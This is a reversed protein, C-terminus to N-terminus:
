KKAKKKPRKGATADAAGAGQSAEFDFLGEVVKGADVGEELPFARGAVM